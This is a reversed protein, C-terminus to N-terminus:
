PLVQTVEGAEGPAVNVAAEGLERDCVLAKAEVYRDVIGVELRGRQQAGARSNPASHAPSEIAGAGSGRSAAMIKAGAPWSTGGASRLVALPPTTTQAPMWMDSM